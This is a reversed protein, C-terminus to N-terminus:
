ADPGAAIRRGRGDKFANTQGSPLTGPDGQRVGGHMPRGAGKGVSLQFCLFM